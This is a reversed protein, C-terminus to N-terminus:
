TEAIQSDEARHLNAIRGPHQAPTTVRAHDNGERRRHFDANISVVGSNISNVARSPLM